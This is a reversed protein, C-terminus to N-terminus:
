VDAHPWYIFEDSSISLLLLGATKDEGNRVVIHDENFLFDYINPYNTSIVSIDSGYGDALTGSLHLIDTGVIPFMNGSGNYKMFYYNDHYIVVAAWDGNWEFIKNPIKNYEDQMSESLIVEANKFQTTGSKNLYAQMDYATGDKDVSINRVLKLNEDEDLGELLVTGVENDSAPEVYTIGTVVAEGISVPSAWVYTDSAEKVLIQRVSNVQLSEMDWTVFSITEGNLYYYAVFTGDTTNRVVGCAWGDNVINKMLEDAVDDIETQSATVMVYETGTSKGTCTIGEDGADTIVLIEDGLLEIDSGFLTLEVQQNENVEVKYEGDALVPHLTSKTQFTGAETDFLYYVTLSEGVNEATEDTINGSIKWGGNWVSSLVNEFDTILTENVDEEEEKTGSLDTGPYVLELPDSKWDCGTMIGALLVIFTWYQLIKKIM